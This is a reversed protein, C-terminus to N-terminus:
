TSTFTYPFSVALDTPAASQDPVRLAVNFTKIQVAGTGTGSYYFDIAGSMGALFLGQQTGLTDSRTLSTGWLSLKAGPSNTDKIGSAGDIKFTWYVGTPCTVSLTVTQGTDKHVDGNSNLSPLALYDTKTVTGLSVVSPINVICEQNEYTGNFDVTGTTTSASAAGTFAFALALGSARLKKLEM